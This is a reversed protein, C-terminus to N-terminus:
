AAAGRELSKTLAETLDTSALDNPVSEGAQELYKTALATLEGRDVDALLPYREPNSFAEVVLEALSPFRKRPRPEGHARTESPRRVDLNLHLCRRKLDRLPALARHVDRTVGEVVLRVIADDPGGAIGELADRVAADIEPTTMTEASLRPLDIVRRSPTIEHFTEAGTELDREVLGKPAGIEGWINSSTFDISGSYAVNPAVHEFQHYHGLAVYQWADAGLEAPSINTLSARRDAGTQQVGAAEGHLVLVNFRSAPDPRLSPRGLGPADPVALISLDRDPFRLRLSEREAVQIGLHEFLSLISGADATKGLDHNGAAIVVITRPLAQVLRSFGAFATTIAFNSPRASHFVDGAIVVVDPALAITQDILRGFTASVDVERQNLGSSALRAYARFGLHLDACHVLRM